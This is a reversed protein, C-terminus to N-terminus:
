ETGSNLSSHSLRGGELIWLSPPLRGEIGLSFCNNDCKFLYDFWWYHPALQEKFSPGSELNPTNRGDSCTGALTLCLELGCSVHWVRM